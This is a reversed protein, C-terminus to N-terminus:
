VLGDLLLSAVTLTVSIANKRIRFSSTLMLQHEEGTDPHIYANCQQWMIVQNFLQIFSTCTNMNFHGTLAYGFNVVSPILALAALVERKEYFYPVIYLIYPIHNM